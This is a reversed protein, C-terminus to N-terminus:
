GCIIYHDPARLSCKTIDLAEGDNFRADTAATSSLETSGLAREEKSLANDFQNSGTWLRTM